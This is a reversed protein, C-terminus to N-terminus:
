ALAGVLDTVVGHNLTVNLGATKYYGRSQAVYFPAFQIDPDYGLGISVDQLAASAMKERADVGNLVLAMGGRGSGSGMVTATGTGSGCSATGGSNTNSGCAPLLVVCCFVLAWFSFTGSRHRVPMVASGEM